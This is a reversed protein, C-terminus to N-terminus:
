HLLLHCITKTHESTLRHADGTRQARAEEATMPKIKTFRVIQTRQALSAKQKGKAATITLQLRWYHPLLHLNQKCETQKNHKKSNPFLALAFFFPFRTFDQTFYYCKVSSNAVLKVDVCVDRQMNLRITHSEWKKVIRFYNQQTCKLLHVCLYLLLSLSLSIALQFQLSDVAFTRENKALPENRWMCYFSVNQPPMWRCCRYLVLTFYSVLLLFFGYSVTSASCRCISHALSDTRSVILAFLLLLFAGCNMLMYECTHIDFCCIMSAFLSVCVCRAWKCVM